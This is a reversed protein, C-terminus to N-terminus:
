SLPLCTPKTLLFRPRGGLLMLLFRVGRVCIIRLLPRGGLELVIRTLNNLGTEVAGDDSEEEGPSGEGFRELGVALFLVVCPPFLSNLTALDSSLTCDKSSSHLKFQGPLPM